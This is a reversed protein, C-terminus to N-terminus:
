AVKHLHVDTQPYPISIGEADFREKVLKMASFYVDWYDAPQVWARWYINVSSDALEGVVIQLAPDKLVRSDNNAVETLIKIAKDMSDDYGIGFTIDVRRLDAAAYNKIVSGWVNGNPVLIPVGDLTKMTTTFLGIEEISGTVGGAEVFQGVSFPRFLLLMIGAAFQSLTGQLALGIALSAAGLVAIISTTEVGFSNLVALIVFAQVLIKAARAFFKTLTDDIKDSKRCARTVMSHVWGAIMNGVLLILIGALVKLGYDTLVGIIQEKMGEM